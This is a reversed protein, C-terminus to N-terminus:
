EPETSTTMPYNYARALKNTKSSKMEAIEHSYTGIVGRGTTHVLMMLGAATAAPLQFVEELVQVVFGRPTYNDNHLIVKYRRPRKLRDLVKVDEKRNTGKKSDGM